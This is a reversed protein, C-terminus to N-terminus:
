VLLRLNFLFGGRGGEGRGREREGERGKKWVFGEGMEEGAGVQLSVRYTRFFFVNHLSSKEPPPTPFCIHLICVSVFPHISFVRYFAKSIGSSIAM